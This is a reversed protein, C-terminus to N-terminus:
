KLRLWAMSGALPLHHRRRWRARFTMMGLLLPHWGHRHAPRPPYMTNWYHIAARASRETFFPSTLGISELAILGIWDLHAYRLAGYAAQAM